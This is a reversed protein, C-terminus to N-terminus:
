GSKRSPTSNASHRRAPFSVGNQFVAPAATTVHSATFAGNMRYVVRPQHSNKRILARRGISGSESYLTKEYVVPQAPNSPTSCFFWVGVYRFM